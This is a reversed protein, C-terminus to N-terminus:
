TLHRDCGQLSEGRASVVDREGTQTHKRATAINERLKAAFSRYGTACSARLMGKPLFRREVMDGVDGGKSRHHRRRTNAREVPDDTPAGGFSPPSNADVCGLACTYMADRFFPCNWPCSFDSFASVSPPLEADVKQKVDLYAKYGKVLANGVLLAKSEGELGSRYDLLHRAAFGDQLVLPHLVPFDM